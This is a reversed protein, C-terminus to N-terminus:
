GFLCALRQLIITAQIGLELLQALNFAFRRVLEPEQSGILREGIGAGYTDKGVIHLGQDGFQVLLQDIQIRIAGGQQDVVHRLMGQDNFQIGFDQADLLLHDLLKLGLKPRHGIPFVGNFLGNSSELFPVDGQRLGGQLLGAQLALHLDISVQVGRQLLFM